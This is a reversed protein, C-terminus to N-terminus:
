SSLERLDVIYQGSCKDYSLHHIGTADKPPNIFSKHTFNLDNNITFLELKHGYGNKSECRCSRSGVCVEFGPPQLPIIVKKDEYIPMGGGRYGKKLIGKKVISWTGFPFSTTTLLYNEQTQYSTTFIFWSNNLYFVTSDMGDLKYIKKIREWKYPFNTARYLFINGSQYSEPIMYWYNQHKFVNPYSLHFKEEIIPKFNLVNDERVKAVAIIGKQDKKLIEAFIYGCVLFPDPSGFKTDYGDPVKVTFIRTPVVLDKLFSKNVFAPTWDIKSNFKSLDEEFNNLLIKYCRKNVLFGGTFEVQQIRHINLKKDIRTKTLSMPSNIVIVDWNNKLTSITNYIINMAEYKDGTFMFDDEIVLIYPLEKHEKIVKKLLKIYSMKYGMERIKHKVAPICHLNIHNELGLFKQQIKHKRDTQHDLNIYFTNIIPQSLKKFKYYPIKASQNKFWDTNKAWSAGFYFHDLALSRSYTKCPFLIQKTNKLICKDDYFVPYIMYTPLITVNKPYINPFSKRFFYPGTEINANPSSFNINDLNKKSLLSKLYKSKPVSGFFGCSMYKDIESSENCVVIEKDTLHDLKNVLEINTDFYFGGHHYIIEFKMLDAVTSWPNLKLKQKIPICKQIYEYTLPFNKKTIDNNGWLRYKWSKDLINKFSSMYLKKHFYKEIKNPGVWIQHITKPIKTPIKTSSKTSSKKDFIHKNRKIQKLNNEKNLEKFIINGKNIELSIGPYYIDIYKGNNFIMENYSGNIIQYITNQDKIYIKKIENNPMQYDYEYGFDDKSYTQNNYIDYQQITIITLFGVFFLGVFFIGLSIYFLTNVKM